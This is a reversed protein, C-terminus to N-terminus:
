SARLGGTARFAVSAHRGFGDLTLTRLSCHEFGSERCRALAGPAYEPKHMDDLVLLGNASVLSLVAPLAELRLAMRGMDHLVLDYSQPPAAAFAPWLFMGDSSVGRAELFGRTRELWQPDDDVSHVTGGGAGARQRRLVFSSFGSGLDLVARPRLLACLADALAATQLSVAWVPSSVSTVYDEYTPALRRGAEAVASPLGGLVPYRATVARLEERGERVRRLALLANSALNSLLSM